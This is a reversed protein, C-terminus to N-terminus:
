FLGPALIKSVLIVILLQWLGSVSVEFEVVASAAVHGLVEVGFGWVTVADGVEGVAGGDGGCEPRCEPVGM